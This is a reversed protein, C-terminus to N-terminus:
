CLTDLYKHFLNFVIGDEKNEDKADSSCHMLITLCYSTILQLGIGIGEAIKLHDSFFLNPFV